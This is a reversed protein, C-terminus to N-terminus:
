SRQTVILVRQLRPEPTGYKWAHYEMRISELAALRKWVPQSQWYAFDNGQDKLTTIRVKSKDMKFVQSM